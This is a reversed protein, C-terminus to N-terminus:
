IRNINQEFECVFKNKAVHSFIGQQKIIKIAHTFSVAALFAFLQFLLLFIFSRLIRQKTRTNRMIKTRIVPQPVFGLAAVLPVLEVADLAGLADPSPLTSIATTASEIMGIFLQSGAIV